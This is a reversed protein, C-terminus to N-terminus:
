GNIRSVSRSAMSGIVYTPMGYLQAGVQIPVGLLSTM